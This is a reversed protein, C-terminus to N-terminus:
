AEETNYTDTYRFDYEFIMTNKVLIYLGCDSRFYVRRTTEKGDVEIRVRKGEKGVLTDDLLKVIM